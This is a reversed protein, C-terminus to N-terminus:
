SSSDLKCNILIFPLTGKEKSSSGDSNLRTNGIQTSSSGDSGLTTNGIKNYSTGDDCMVTNGIKQCNRAFASTPTLLVFGSVAIAALYKKM